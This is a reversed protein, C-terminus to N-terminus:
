PDRPISRRYMECLHAITDILTLRYDLLIEDSRGELKLQKSFDDMLEMHTEVIQSVSVDAFFATNVFDDIKQNLQEDGSFYVLVIDSYDSKLKRLFKQKEAAPLYRLFNKPDRKYYVGLYGLREKLKDALRRQQLMLSNQSILEAMLDPAPQQNSTHHTPSLKIFQVIAQNIFQAIQNLQAVSAEVTAVHYALNAQDQITNQAIPQASELPNPDLTEIEPCENCPVSNNNLTAEESKLVVAPLFIAQKQLQEILSTLHSGSQLILCDIQQKELELFDLLEKESSFQTVRYRDGSLLTTLSQALDGSNLLISISLQPYM